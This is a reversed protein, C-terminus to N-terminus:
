FAKSEWMIAEKVVSLPGWFGGQVTRHSEHEQRFRMLRVLERLTLSPGASHIPEWPSCAAMHPQSCLTDAQLASSRKIWPQMQGVPPAGKESESLPMVHTLLLGVPCDAAVPNRKQLNTLQNVEYFLYYSQTSILILLAPKQLEPFHFPQLLKLINKGRTGFFAIAKFMSGDFSNLDARGPFCSSLFSPLPYGHKNM